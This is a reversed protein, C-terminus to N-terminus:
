GKLARETCGPGNMDSYWDAAAMGEHAIIQFYQQQYQASVHVWRKQLRCTPAHSQRHTLCSQCRFVSASVQRCQECSPQCFFQVFRLHKKEDNMM